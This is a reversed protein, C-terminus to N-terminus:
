NEGTYVGGTDVILSMESLKSSTVPKKSIIVTAVKTEPPKKFDAKIDAVSVTKKWVKLKPNKFTAILNLLFLHFAQGNVRAFAFMLTIGMVILGAAVFLSFDFVKYFIFIIGGGIMMEIFQRITIPGIIKDEVDLFQPVTVQQM